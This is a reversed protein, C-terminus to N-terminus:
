LSGTKVRLHVYLPEPTYLRPKRQDLDPADANIPTRIYCPRIRDMPAINNLFLTPFLCGFLCFNHCDFLYIYVFLIISLGDSLYLLM